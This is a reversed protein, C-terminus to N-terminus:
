KIKLPIGSVMFYVEDASSAVVQNVEGLLDRYLRGLPYEPVLGMGVENSVIIVHREMRGAEFIMVNIENLLAERLDEWTEPNEAKELPLWNSVLLALCDILVVGYDTLRGDGSINKLAKSVYEPEEVTMWVAPRRQRHLAIRHAMEEDLAQATAIYIVKQNSEAAMREAFRSKGSRAGGTIFTISM